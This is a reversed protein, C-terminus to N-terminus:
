KGTVDVKPIMARVVCPLPADTTIQLPMNIGFGDDVNVAVTGTFLGDIDSKNKWEPDNFDIQKMADDHIGSKVGTDPIVASRDNSDDTNHFSIGMQKCTVKKKMMNPQSLPKMPRLKSEYKLGIHVETAGSFASDDIEGNDDIVQDPYVVGDALISVTEGVLHNFEINSTGETAATFAQFWITDFDWADPYNPKRKLWTTTKGEGGDSTTYGSTETDWFCNTVNLENVNGGFGGDETGSTTVLGTSYCNDLTNGAAGSNVFGATGTGSDQMTVSGRAYCDTIEATDEMGGVFGGVDDPDIGSATSTGTSYSKRIYGAGSHIGVFGGVNEEAIVNGTSYCYEIKATDAAAGGGIYGVFGGVQTSNEDTGTVDGTAFCNSVTSDDIEGAFGGVNSCQVAVGLIEANVACASSSDYVFCTDTTDKGRVWAILGGVFASNVGNSKINGTAHCNQVLVDQAVTFADLYSALAAIYDDGAIDVDALTVNAIKAPGQVVGFLSTYDTTRNITLGTITYGAGDFTGTFPSAITGIAIFGAGGNWTSTISADIDGTLYYNGARDLNMDQLDNVDSIATTQTLGPDAQASTTRLTPYDGLVELTGSRYDGTWGEGCEVFHAEARRMEWEIYLRASFCSRYM